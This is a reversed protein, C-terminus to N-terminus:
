RQEEKFFTDNIIQTAVRLRQKDVWSLDPNTTRYHIIAKMVLKAVQRQSYLSGIEQAPDYDNGM